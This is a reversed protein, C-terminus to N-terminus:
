TRTKSGSLKTLRTGNRIGTPVGIKFAGYSSHTVLSKTQRPHGLSISTVIPRLPSNTHTSPTSNSSCLLSGRRKPEGLPPTRGYLSKGMAVANYPAYAIRCYPVSPIAQPTTPYTYKQRIFGLQYIGFRCRLNPQPPFYEILHLTRSYVSPPFQPV